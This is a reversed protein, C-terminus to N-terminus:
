GVLARSSWEIDFRASQEIIRADFKVNVDHAGGPPCTTSRVSVARCERALVSAVM